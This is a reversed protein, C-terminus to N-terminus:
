ARGELAELVKLITGSILSWSDLGHATPSMKDEIQLMYSSLVLGLHGTFSGLSSAFSLM